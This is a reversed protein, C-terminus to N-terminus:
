RSSNKCEYKKNYLKNHNSKIRENHSYFVIDDSSLNEVITKLDSISTFNVDFFLTDSANCSPCMYDMYLLGFDKPNLCVGFSNFNEVKIPKGCIPCIFEFNVSFGLNYIEESKLDNIEKLTLKIRNM